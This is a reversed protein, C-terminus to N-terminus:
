DIVPFVYISFFYKYGLNHYLYHHLSIIQKNVGRVIYLYEGIISSCTTVLALSLLILSVLKHM